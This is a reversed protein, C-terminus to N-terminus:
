HSTRRWMNDFIGDAAGLHSTGAGYCGFRCASPYLVQVIDRRPAIELRAM